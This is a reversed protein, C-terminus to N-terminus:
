AGGAAAGRAGGRVLVGEERLVTALANAFGTYKSVASAGVVPELQVQLRIKVLDLPAVVVRNICGAAAGALADLLMRQQKSLAGGGADGGAAPVHVM